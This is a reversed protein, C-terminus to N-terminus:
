PLIVVRYFRAADLGAGTDTASANGGGVGNTNVSALVTRRNQLDRVFVDVCPGLNDNTVLNNAQSVFALWRGDASLVPGQSNGSASLCTRAPSVGLMSPMACQVHPALSSLWLGGGVLVILYKISFTKM